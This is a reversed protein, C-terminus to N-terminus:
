ILILTTIRLESGEGQHISPLFIDLFTKKKKKRPAHALYHADSQPCTPPICVHLDVLTKNKDPIITPFKM